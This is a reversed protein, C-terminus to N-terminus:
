SSPSISNKRARSISTSRGRQSSPGRLSRISRRQKLNEELIDVNSQQKELDFEDSSPKPEDPDEMLSAEETTEKNHESDDHLGYGAAEFHSEKEKASKNTDGTHRKNDEM